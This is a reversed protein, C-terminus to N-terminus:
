QNYPDITIVAIGRRVLEISYSTMTEKSREFGPCVVVAPVPADATATKPRFLDATVWQGNETPLKLGLVQVSRGATQVLYAGINGLVILALAVCLLGAPRNRLTATPQHSESM